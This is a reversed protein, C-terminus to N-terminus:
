SLKDKFKIAASAVAVVLGFGAAVVRALDGLQWLQTYAYILTLAGGLINSYMLVRNNKMFMGWLTFGFGILLEVIILPLSHPFSESLYKVFIPLLTGISIIMVLERIFSLQEEATKILGKNAERAYLILLGLIGFFALWGFSAVAIDGAAIFVLGLVLLLFPWLLLLGIIEM